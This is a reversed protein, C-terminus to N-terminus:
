KNQFFLMKIGISILLIGFIKELISKDLVTAIKAGVFSGLFLGLAIFIASQIEVNKNQYYVYAGLLGIPLSLVALTTGQATKQSFGFIFILSPIIIIGGGIGVLGSLLGACVGLILFSIWNM